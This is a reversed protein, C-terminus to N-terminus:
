DLSEINVDIQRIYRKAAHSQWRGMEQIKNYPIGKFMANTAGGIRFSHAKINRKEPAAVQMAGALIANFQFRSLYTGNFHMFLPGARKGRMALFEMTAAVPCLPHGNHGKFVITNALGLQDTKSFRIKVKLFGKKWAIDGLLLVTKSAKERTESVFEGIRFLGFFALLFSCKLMAREYNSACVPTLSAVLKRLLEITIPDRLETSSPKKFGGKLSKRVNFDDCPDDFLLTKHWNSIASVYAAITSPAKHKLSLSAIFRRVELSSAPGSINTCGCEIRFKKLCDMGVEYMKLTRPAWAMNMLRGSEADLAAM